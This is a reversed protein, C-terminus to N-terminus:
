EAGTSTCLAGGIIILGGCLGEFWPLPTPHGATLAILVLAVGCITALGAPWLHPGPVVLVRLAALATLVAPVLSAVGNSDAGSLQYPVIQTVLMVAAGVLALVAGVPAWPGRPTDITAQQLARTRRTVAAARRRAVAGGVTDAPAIGAHPTGHELEHLEHGIGATTVQADYLVGGGLALGVGALLVLIGLISAILGLRAVGVGFLCSGAVAVVLGGWVWRPRVVHRSRARDDGRSRNM